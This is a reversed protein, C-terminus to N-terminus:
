VLREGAAALGQVRLVGGARGREGQRPAWLSFPTTWAISASPPIPACGDRCCGPIPLQPLPPPRRWVNFRTAATPRASSRQLHPGVANRAGKTARRQHGMLMM